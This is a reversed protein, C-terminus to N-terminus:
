IELINSITLQVNSGNTPKPLGTMTDIALILTSTADTGTDKYIVIVAIDLTTDIATYLVNDADFIGKDNVDDETFEKNALTKREYGSGSDNVLEKTVVDSVYDDDPDPTYTDNLLMIKITDSTLNIAGSLREKKGLNYLINSM